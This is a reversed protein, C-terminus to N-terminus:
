KVVQNRECETLRRQLHARDTDNPALELARRYAGAAGQSLGLRALLEARTSHLLHYGELQPRLADVHALGAAPGRAMAVAVARNLEVVPSPTFAVLADYLAVIRRWDTDGGSAHEAAIAAQLQYPGLIGIRAARALQEHGDSIARQDFRERCQDALLILTGDDTLRAARRAHHLLMLALLGRAEAEDPMLSVLVRALRIAEDCLEGRAAPDSYGENFVLYLVALVARLRDPLLEDPPVRLPIGAERVKRKARVLRQAITDTPVLFARAIEPTQLGGVLRLTLAVQAELSLAPHCCTFILSLREDAIASMDGEEEGGGTLEQLRALAQTKQALTRERRLRDIARNRATTIIWAGPNDPVGDRPWRALAIAFADQVADEALDLDRLM